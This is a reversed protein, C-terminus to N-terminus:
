PRGGTTSNETIAQMLAGLGCAVFAGYVAFSGIFFYDRERVERPLASQDLVPLLRVQLEHLVRTRGLAHGAPGRRRHGGAPGGELASGLESLGLVTFIATAVGSLRGWDRAFQWSYYQWFNALQGTFSAQRESLAPKGYQVRNLVDQLAQSLFGVPEGENIPPYQAARMPLWLYNLSVGVVVAVLGLYVLPDRPSRWLAYGAVVLSVLLIVGGEPTGPNLIAIWKGSVALMLAYFTVIAWPRIVTRWDTWVVYVLLAPTALFGMLHNTSTLGLVYAILVLWRDRHPGPEDDGWRVVLWMVLAISLLSVTYVKENVTSQNWVSWSTAGVLVGGFAAGYRAWRPQVIGRLWREAVLFWLGAGLASTVAAFLNIRMAYSAGLPLLGFTHALIVFLPNGPPHPIGLVRAAAIYESTDWFATTPALTSVYILLVVVFTGFAFLYPPRAQSTPPM